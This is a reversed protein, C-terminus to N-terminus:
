SLGIQWAYIGDKRAQLIKMSEVCCCPIAGAHVVSGQGDFEALTGNIIVNGQCLAGIVANLRADSLLVACSASREKRM